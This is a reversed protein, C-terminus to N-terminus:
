FAEGITVYLNSEGDATLAVDLRLNVGDEENLAYRLGVGGAYKLDLLEFESLEGAM